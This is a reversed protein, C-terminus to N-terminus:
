STHNKSQHEDRGARYAHHLARVFASLSLGQEKADKLMQDKEHQTMSIAVPIARDKHHKM